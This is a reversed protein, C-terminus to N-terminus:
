EQVLKKVIQYQEWAEHLSPHRRRMETDYLGIALQDHKEIELEHVRSRLHSIEMEYEERLTSPPEYKSQQSQNSNHSGQIQNTAWQGDFYDRRMKENLDNMTNQVLNRYQTATYAPIM